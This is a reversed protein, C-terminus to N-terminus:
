RAGGIGALYQRFDPHNVACGAAHLWHPWGNAHDAEAGCPCALTMRAVNIRALAERVVAPVDEPIVLLKRFGLVGLSPLLVVHTAYGDGHDLCPLGPVLEAPTSAALSSTDNLRNRAGDDSRHPSRRTPRSM